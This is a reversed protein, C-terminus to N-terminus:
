TRRLSYQAGAEGTVLTLAAGLLDYLLLFPLKKKLELSSFKFIFAKDEKMRIISRGTASDNAVLFDPGQIGIMVNKTQIKKLSLSWASDSMLPNENERMVLSICVHRTNRTFVIKAFNIIYFTKAQPSAPIACM